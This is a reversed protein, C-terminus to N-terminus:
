SERWNVYGILITMLMIIGMLLIGNNDGTKPSESNNVQGAFSVAATESINGSTGGAMGSGSINGTNEKTFNVYTYAILYLSSKLNVSM